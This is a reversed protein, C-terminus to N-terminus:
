KSYGAELEIGLSNAFKSLGNYQNVVFIIEIVEEHNYITMLQQMTDPKVRTGAVLEDAVRILLRDADSWEGAPVEQLLANMEKDTLGAELGYDYHHMWEYSSRARWATRLALLELERRPLTTTAGLQSAMPVFVDFLKSHRAITQLMNLPKKGDRDISRLYGFLKKQQENWLPEPLPAILPTESHVSVSSTAALAVTFLALVKNAWQKNM